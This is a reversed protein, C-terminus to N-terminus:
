DISPPARLGNAGPKYTCTILFPLDVFRRRDTQVAPPITWLLDKLCIFSFAKEKKSPKEGFNFRICDIGDSLNLHQHFPLLPNNRDEDEGTNGHHHGAEDHHHHDKHSHSHKDTHHYPNSIENWDNNHHHPIMEHSLMM